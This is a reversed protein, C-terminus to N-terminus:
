ADAICGIYHWLICQLAYWVNTLEGTMGYVAQYPMQYLQIHWICNKLSSSLSIQYCIVAMYPKILDAMYLKILDKMMGYVAKDSAMYLKILDKRVTRM